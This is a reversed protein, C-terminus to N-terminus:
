RHETTEVLLREYESKTFCEIFPKKRGPLEEALWLIRLDYWGSPQEEMGIVRGRTGKPVGHFDRQAMIITGIKARAEFELFTPFVVM